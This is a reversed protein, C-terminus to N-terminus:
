RVLALNDFVATGHLSGVGAAGRPLAPP